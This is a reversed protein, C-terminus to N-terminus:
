VKYRPRPFCIVGLQDLLEPSCPARVSTRDLFSGKGKPVTVYTVDNRKPRM